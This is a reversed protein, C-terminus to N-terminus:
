QGGQQHLAERSEVAKPVVEYASGRAAYTIYQEKCQCPSGGMAGDAIFVHEGDGCQAIRAAM